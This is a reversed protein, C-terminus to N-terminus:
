ILTFFEKMKSLEKVSSDLEATSIKLATTDAALGPVTNNYNQTVMDVKNELITDKANLGTIDSKIGSLNENVHAMDKDYQCLSVDGNTYRRDHKIEGIVPGCETTWNYNDRM